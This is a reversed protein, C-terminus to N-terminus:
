QLRFNITLTYRVAVPTGDPKRAPEYRWQLVAETAAEALRPDPSSLVRLDIIQGQADLLGQLVVIGQARDDKASTPYKPAVKHVLTPETIDGKVPLPVPGTAPPEPEVIVFIYPAAAGDMGGVVARGGRTVSVTSDALATKGQRFVIRYSAVEDNFGLLRADLSVVDGALSPLEIPEGVTARVHRGYQIQRVPDLRFTSWLKDVTRTFSLSKRIVEPKGADDPPPAEVALPIVTGPVLLVGGSAAEEGSPFGILVAFNTAVEAKPGASGAAAAQCGLLLM